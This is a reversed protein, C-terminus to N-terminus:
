TFAGAQSLESDSVAMCYVTYGGILFNTLDQKQDGEWIIRVDQVWDVVDQFTGEPIKMIEECSMEYAAIAQLLRSTDQQWGSAQGPAELWSGDETGTNQIRTLVEIAGKAIEEKGRAEVFLDLHQGTVFEVFAINGLIAPLM